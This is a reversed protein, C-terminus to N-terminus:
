EKSTTTTPIFFLTFVAFLVAFFLRGVPSLSEFAGSYAMLCFMVVSAVALYIKM